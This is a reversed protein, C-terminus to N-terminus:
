KNESSPTTNITNTTTTSDTTPITNNSKDSDSTQKDSKTENLQSQQLLFNVWLESISNDNINDTSLPTTLGKKSPSFLAGLFTAKSLGVLQKEQDSFGLIRAMLEMVDQKKKGKEFYTVVLKRVLRKDVANEENASLNSIHKMSQDLARKLPEVEEKLRTVEKSKATLETQFQNSAELLLLNQQKMEEIITLDNKLHLIEKQATSLEKQLVARENQIVSEQEAQLQELVLQLNSIALDKKQVDIIKDEIEQKLQDNLLRINTLMEDKVKYDLERAEYEALKKVKAKLVENHDSESRENYAEMEILHIKLREV